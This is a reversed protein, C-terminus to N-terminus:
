RKLYVVYGDKEPNPVFTADCHDCGVESESYMDVIAKYRGALFMGCRPCRLLYIKQIDTHTKEYDDLKSYTDAVSIGLHRAVAAPYIINGPKYISLFSELADSIQTASTATDTSNSISLNPEFRSAKAENNLGLEGFCACEPDKSGRTSSESNDAWGIADLFDESYGFYQYVDKIDDLCNEKAYMHAIQSPHYTLLYDLLLYAGEPLPERIINENRM